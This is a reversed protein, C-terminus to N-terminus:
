CRSSSRTTCCASHRHAGGASSPRHSTSGARPRKAGPGSRCGPVAEVACRAEPRPRSGPARPLRADEHPERLGGHRVLPRLPQALSRLLALRVRRPPVGEAADLRRGAVAEVVVAALTALAGPVGPAAGALLPRGNEFRLGLRGAAAAREVTEEVTRVVPVGNNALALARLAERLELARALDGRGPRVAADVLGLEALVDGLRQPSSLMERGHEHDVTNVFRQVLALRGPAPETDALYDIREVPEM